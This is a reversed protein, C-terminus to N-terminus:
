MATATIHSTGSLRISFFMLSSLDHRPTCPHPVSSSGPARHKGLRNFKRRRILIGVCECFREAIWDNSLM